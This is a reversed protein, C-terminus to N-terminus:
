EGKDSPVYRPWLINIGTGSMQGLQRLRSWVWHRAHSALIFLCSMPSYHLKVGDGRWSPHFDMPFQKMKSVMTVSICKVECLKNKIYIYSTHTYKISITAFLFSQYWVPSTRKQNQLYKILIYFRLINKLGVWKKLTM